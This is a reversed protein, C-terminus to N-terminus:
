LSLHSRGVEKRTCHKRINSFIKLQTRVRCNWSWNLNIDAKVTRTYWYWPYMYGKAVCKSIKKEFHTLLKCWYKKGDLCKVCKSFFCLYWFIFKTKFQSRKLGILHKNKQTFVTQYQRGDNAVPLLCHFIWWIIEVLHNMIIIQLIFECVHVKKKFHCSVDTSILRYFYM